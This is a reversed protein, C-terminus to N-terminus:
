EEVEKFYKAYQSAPIEFSNPGALLQVVTGYDVVDFVINPTIHFRRESRDELCTAYIALDKKAVARM